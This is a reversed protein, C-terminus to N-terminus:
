FCHHNVFSSTYAQFQQYCMAMPSLFAFDISHQSLLQGVRFLFTSKGSGAIGNIVTTNVEGSITRQIAEKVMKLCEHQDHILKKLHPLFNFPKRVSCKKANIIWTKYFAIERTYEDRAVSFPFTKDIERKGLQQKM